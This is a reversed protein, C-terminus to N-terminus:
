NGRRKDIADLVASFRVVLSRDVAFIQNQKEKDKMMVSVLLGKSEREYVDCGVYIEKDGAVVFVAPDSDTLEVFAGNYMEVTVKNNILLCKLFYM